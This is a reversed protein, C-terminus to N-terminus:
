TEEGSGPLAAQSKAIGECLKLINGLADPHAAHAEAAILMLTNGYAQASQRATIYERHMIDALKLLEGLDHLAKNLMDSAITPMERTFAWRASLIRYRDRQTQNM